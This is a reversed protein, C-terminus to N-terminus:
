KVALAVLLCGAIAIWTNRQAKIRLRTRKEEAASEKLFQNANALSQQATQLQAKSTDLQIKLTQLQAESKALQEQLRKSETQQTSSIQALRNLRSDLAQMEAETMTYVPEPTGSASAIASSGLVWWAFLCSLFLLLWKKTQLDLTLFTM